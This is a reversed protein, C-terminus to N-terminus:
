LLRSCLCCAKNDEFIPKRDKEGAYNVLFRSKLDKVKPGQPLCKIMYGFDRFASENRCGKDEAITGTLFGNRVTTQGDKNNNAKM